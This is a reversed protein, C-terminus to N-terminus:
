LKAFDLNVKMSIPIIASLLIFTRILYLYWTSSLIKGSFITLFISIIVLSLFLMKSLKNIELDTKGIKSIPKRSNQAIRTEKGTYIVVGLIEGSAVRM